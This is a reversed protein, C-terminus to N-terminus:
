ILASNVAPTRLVESDFPLRMGTASRNERQAIDVQADDIVKLATERPFGALLLRAPWINLGHRYFSLRISCVNLPIQDGM